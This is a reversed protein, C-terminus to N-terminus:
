YQSPVKGASNEKENKKRENHKFIRAVKKKTMEFIIRMEESTTYHQDIVSIIYLLVVPHKKEKRTIICKPTYEVFGEKKRPHQPMCGNFPEAKNPDCAYPGIFIHQQHILIQSRM